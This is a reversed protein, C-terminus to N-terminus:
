TEVSMPALHLGIILNDKKSTTRLLIDATWVSYSVCEKHRYQCHDDGRAVGSKILHSVTLIECKGM